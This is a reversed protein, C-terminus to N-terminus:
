FIPRPIVKMSVSFLIQSRFTERYATVGGQWTFPLLPRNKDTM